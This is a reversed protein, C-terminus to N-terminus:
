GAEPRQASEHDPAAASGPMGARWASAFAHVAICHALFRALFVGVCLLVLGLQALVEVTVAVLAAMTYGGAVRGLHRGVQQFRFAASLEGAAVAALLGAPLYVLTVAIAPPGVLAAAVWALAPTTVTGALLAVAATLGVGPLLLGITAIWLRLGELLDEDMRDWPPLGDRSGSMAAMAVRRLYGLLLWRSALSLLLLIPLLGWLSSPSRGSGAFTILVPVVVLLPALELAAGALLRRPWFPGRFAFSLSAGLEM